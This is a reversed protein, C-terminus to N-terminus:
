RLVNETFDDVLFTTRFRGPRGAVPWSGTVAIRSDFSNRSVTSLHAAFCSSSGPRESAMRRRTSSPSFAFFQSQASSDGGHSMPSM